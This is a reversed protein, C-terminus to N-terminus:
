SRARRQEVGGESLQGSARVQGVEVDDPQVADPGPDRLLVAPNDGFDNPAFELDAAEDIHTVIARRKLVSLEVRRILV